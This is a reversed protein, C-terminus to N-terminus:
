STPSPRDHSSGTAASVVAQLHGATMGDTEAVVEQLPLARLLQIANAFHKESEKLKGLRRMLNGLAFHALVHAPDLYLARKLAAVAGELEGREQLIAAQLFHAATNLANATLAEECSALAAGLDGRNAQLQAMQLQTVTELQGGGPTGADPRQPPVGTVPIRHKPAAEGLAPQAAPWSASAVDNAHPHTADACAMSAAHEDSRKEYFLCDPLTVAAFRAFLTDSTESPAVILVGGHALSRYLRDAVAQATEPTFYMLVNRCLIIDIAQTNTLMSPYSDEVLNLYSFTVLRRIPARVEYRDEAHKLFNTERVATPVGRFSRPSYTGQIATLMFRPNIDTALITCDWEDVDPLLKRLLIALSYPEEGTCCGASWLRLTRSSHRRSEILAPLIRTALADFIAQDRFFYTEGITLHSALVEIQSRSPSCSLLWRICARPDTFEFEQAATRLGNELEVWRAPPFHLGLHVGVFRSFESLLSPSIDTM